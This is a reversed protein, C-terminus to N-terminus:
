DDWSIKQLFDSEMRKIFEALLHGTRQIDHLSILEVPTHLYRTPISLVMTPIGEAVLQMGMADTGSQMPQTELQHPIDLKEALKKFERFLPPHINPGIGLAVGKGLSLGRYDSVGPGKGFTVDIAIAIDPQIESPSTFAGALSVEEQVTAVFWVDWAHRALQLEQLCITIAAVSARNDITHGAVLDGSLDFPEQAFSILDGTHVLKNVDEPSLGTDVVLYHKHVPKHNSAFQAPLLYDPPKMIIGPLDQRGHVVVSQGPLIRDDIGGIETFYLFGQRITTVIMGIADMHAALLIRPRPEPGSGRRLGHLSGLRVTSMEDVLPKWADAILRTAPDEHGSLGSVSLLSKLFPALEVM